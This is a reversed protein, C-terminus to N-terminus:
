ARVSERVLARVRHMIDQDTGLERLSEMVLSRVSNRVAQSQVQYQILLREASTKFQIELVTNQFFYFLNTKDSQWGISSM